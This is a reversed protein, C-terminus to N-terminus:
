DGSGMGSNDDNGNDDNSNGNDNSNQNENENSNGSSGSSGSDGSGATNENANADGSTEAGTGGRDITLITGCAVDVNVTIQGSIRVEWVLTGGFKTTQLISLITANPFVELVKTVAQAATLPAGCGPAFTASPTPTISSTPSATPSPTPSATQTATPTLTASPSPTQSATMTLSPIVTTTPSSTSTLSATATPPPTPSPTETSAIPTIADVQPPLEPRTLAFWAASLMLMLIVVAALLQTGPAIRRRPRTAIRRQVAEWVLAQDQYIERPPVQLDRFTTVTELMPQLQDAYAPYLLLCREITDGAALRQVCDEFIEILSLQAM